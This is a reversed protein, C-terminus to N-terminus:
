ASVVGTMGVTPLATLFGCTRASRPGELTQVQTPACEFVFRVYKCFNFISITRVGLTQLREVLMKCQTTKGARDAGEVVIFAGRRATPGKPVLAVRAAMDGLLPCARYLHSGNIVNSRVLSGRVNGLLIM